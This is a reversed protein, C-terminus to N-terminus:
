RSGFAYLDHNWSGVFLMGGAVSPPEFVPGTILSGSNWLAAGTQADNAFLQKGIGDVSYVVGNAVSAALNDNVPPTAGETVQWALSLKCNTIHFAVLGDHYIGYGAPDGVYVLDQQASYTAVGIFQGAESDDAMDLSQLPGAAIRGATYVYLTGDKNQATFELPCRPSSFLMPTSGFDYDRTDNVLGPYNAAKVHLRATLQVVHEGYAANSTKSVSNGTAVFVDNTAADISPGGMGWLGGGNLSGAPLFTAVIRAKSTNIAVLRSHYPPIDCYGATQAYLLGNAPNYTLASYIHEGSVNTTVAVPWGPAEAGTRMDLADVKDRGDGVYVRNTARDFTATGTIGFVGGPLEDCTSTASGLSRSWLVHGSGADLAYFAGGETGVYVVDHKVSGITVGGAYLPQADIASGLDRKWRETLSGVNSIGLTPENPNDGSRAVDVGFTSWDASRPAGSGLCSALLACLVVACLGRPAAKM